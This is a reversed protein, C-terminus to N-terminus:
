PSLRTVCARETQEALVSLLARLQDRCLAEHGRGFDIRALATGLRPPQAAFTRDPDFFSKM